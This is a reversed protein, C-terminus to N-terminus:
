YNDSCVTAGECLQAYIQAYRAMESGETAVMGELFFAKAEERNTWIEEEGGCSVIIEENGKVTEKAYKKVNNALKSM